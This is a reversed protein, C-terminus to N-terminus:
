SGEDGDRDAAGCECAAYQHCWDAYNAREASAEDWRTLVDDALQRADCPWCDVAGDNWGAGHNEACWETQDGNETCCERCCRKEISHQCGVFDDCPYIGEPPNDTETSYTESWKSWTKDCDDCAESLMLWPSHREKIAEVQRRNM